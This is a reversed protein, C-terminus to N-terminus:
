QGTYPQLDPTYYSDTGVDKYIYTTKDPSLIKVLDKYTDDPM